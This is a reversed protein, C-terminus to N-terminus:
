PRLVDTSIRRGRIRALARGAHVVRHEYVISGDPTSTLTGPFLWATGRPLPTLAHLARRMDAPLTSDRSALGLRHLLDLLAPQHAMGSADVATSDDVSLYGTLIGRGRANVRDPLTALSWTASARVNVGRPPSVRYPVRRQADERSGYRLESHPRRETRVFFVASDGPETTIVFRYTGVFPVDRDLFRAREAELRAIRLADAAPYRRALDPHARAWTEMRELAGHPDAEAGAYTPMAEALGLMEEATLHAGIYARSTARVIAAPYPVMQAASVDLTPIDDVWHERDRLAAVFLGAEHDPIWRASGPWPVPACGADYDWPVLVVRNGAETVTRRLEATAMAGLREVAVLQGHIPRERPRGSHGPELTFRISGPGAFLTDALPRGTFFVADPRSGGSFWPALSCGRAPSATAALLIAALGIISRAAYRFRPYPLVDVEPSRAHDGAAFSAAGSQVRCRLDCSHRRFRCVSAATIASWPHPALERARTGPM